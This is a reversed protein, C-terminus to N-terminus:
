KVKGGSEGGWYVEGGVEAHKGLLRGEAKAEGVDYTAFSIWSASSQRPMESPVHRSLASPLMLTLFYQNAKLARTRFSTFDADYNAGDENDAQKWCGGQHEIKAGVIAPLLQCGRCRRHCFDALFIYNRTGISVAYLTSARNKCVLRKSSRRGILFLCPQITQEIKDGRVIRKRRENKDIRLYCGRRGGKRSM